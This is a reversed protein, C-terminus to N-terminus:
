SRNAKRLSSFLLNPVPESIDSHSGLALDPVEATISGFGLETAKVATPMIKMTPKKRIAYQLCARLAM